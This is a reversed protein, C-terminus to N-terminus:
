FIKRNGPFNKYIEDMNYGHTIPPNAGACPACNISGDVVSDVLFNSQNDGYKDEIYM